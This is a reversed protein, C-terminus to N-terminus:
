FPAGGTGAAAQSGTGGTTAAAHAAMPDAVRAAAAPSGTAPAASDTVQISDAPAHEKQYQTSKKIQEQCWEPLLGFAADDWQDMDWSFLPTTSQPVPLGKPLPMLNVVNSYEKTDNLAVQLQCAKGLQETPDLDGFEEDTYTRSNWSELFSRLNGSKKLSFTFERSLQREEPKGNIELTESPLAWVFKLKNSYRGFKESYQEGLDVVGVCVAMYVGPEVPPTKPRARDKIRM